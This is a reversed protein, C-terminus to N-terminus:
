AACTRPGQLNAPKKALDGNRQWTEGGMWRVVRRARRSRVPLLDTSRGTSPEQPIELRLTQNKIDSEGVLPPTGMQHPRGGPDQVNEICSYCAHLLIRKGEEGERVRVIRTAISEAPYM